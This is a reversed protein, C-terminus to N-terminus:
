AAATEMPANAPPPGPPTSLEELAERILRDVLDVDKLTWHPSIARAKSPVALLKTRIVTFLSATAAEVDKAQVLEGLQKQYEMKALLAKYKKEEASAENLKWREEPDLPPQGPIEPEERLTQQQAPPV